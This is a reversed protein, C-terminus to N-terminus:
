IPLLHKWKRARKSSEWFVAELMYVKNHHIRTIEKLMLTNRKSTDEMQLKLNSLKLTIPFVSTRCFLVSLSIGKITISYQMCIILHVAFMKAQFNSIFAVSHSLAQTLQVQVFVTGSTNTEAPSPRSPPIAEGLVPSSSSDSLSLLFLLFLPIKGLTAVFMM